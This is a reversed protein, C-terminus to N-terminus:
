LPTAQRITRSDGYCCHGTLLRTNAQCACAVTRRVCACQRTTCHASSADPHPWIHRSVGLTRQQEEVTLLEAFSHFPIFILAYQKPLSLACVDQVFAPATLGKQALKRQLIALMELSNDVCTLDIGAERLPLSVRGTGAM